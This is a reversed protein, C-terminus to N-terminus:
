SKYIGNTSFTPYHRSQPTNEPSDLLAASEAAKRAV